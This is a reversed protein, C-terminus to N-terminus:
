LAEKIRELFEEMEGEDYKRQPWDFEIGDDEFRPVIHFHLHPVIQGAAKHNNTFVNYGHAGTAKKVAIAIKKTATILEKLEEDPIDALTEYHQKPIALTHGKNAPAIDPFSLDSDDEYVRSSPIEGKVIKCFICDDM